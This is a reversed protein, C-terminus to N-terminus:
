FMGNENVMQEPIAQGVDWLEAIRKGEFRFVHVVVGGRDQPNQRVHSVTAVRDGDELALVATAIKTLSAPPLRVAPGDVQAMVTKTVLLM